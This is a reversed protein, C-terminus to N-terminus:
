GALVLPVSTTGQSCANTRMWSVISNKEVFPMIRLREFHTQSPLHLRVTCSQCAQHIAGLRMEYRSASVVARRGSQHSRPM